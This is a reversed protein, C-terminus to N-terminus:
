TPPAQYDINNLVRWLEKEQNGTIDRSSIACVLLEKFIKNPLQCVRDITGNNFRHTLQRPSLEAFYDLQIWTNEKLYTSHLPLFFNPFRNDTQCGYETGRATSPKSTTTVSIYPYHEGDNLVILLKRPQTGDTIQRINNSFVTGPNM